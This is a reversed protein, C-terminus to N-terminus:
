LARAQTVDRLFEDVVLFDYAPKARAMRSAYRAM